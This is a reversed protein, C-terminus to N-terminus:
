PRWNMPLNSHMWKKIWAKQFRPLTWSENGTNIWRIIWANMMQFGQSWLPECVIMKRMLDRESEGQEGEEWSERWKTDRRMRMRKSGKEEERRGREGATDGEGKSERARLGGHLLICGSCNSSATRRQGRTTLPTVTGSLTRSTCPSRVGESSCGSTATRQDAHFLQTLPFICHLLSSYNFLSPKGCAVAVFTQVNSNWYPLQKKASLGIHCHCGKSYIGNTHIKYHM